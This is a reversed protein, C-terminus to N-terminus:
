FRMPYGCGRLASSTRLGFQPWAYWIPSGFLPSVFGPLSKASGVAPYGIAATSTGARVPATDMTAGNAASVTGPTEGRPVPKRRHKKPKRAGFCSPKLGVSRKTLVLAAILWKRKRRRDTETPPTRANSPTPAFSFDCYGKRSDGFVVTRPPRGAGRALAISIPFPAALALTCRLVRGCDVHLSCRGYM